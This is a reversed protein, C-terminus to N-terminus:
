LRASGNVVTSLALTGIGAQARAAKRYIQRPLYPSWRWSLEWANSAEVEFKITNKNRHLPLQFTNVPVNNEKMWKVSETIAEYESLNLIFYEFM